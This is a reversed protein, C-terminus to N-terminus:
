LQVNCDEGALCTKPVYHLYGFSHANDVSEAVESFRANVEPCSRVRDMRVRHADRSMAGIMSFRQM